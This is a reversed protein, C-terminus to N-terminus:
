IVVDPLKSGGDHLSRGVGDHIVEDLESGYPLSALKHVGCVARLDIRVAESGDYAETGRL